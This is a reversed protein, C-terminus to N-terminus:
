LHYRFPISVRKAIWIYKQLFFIMRMGMDLNLLYWIKTGHGSYRTNM